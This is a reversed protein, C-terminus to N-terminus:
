ALKTYPVFASLFLSTKNPDWHNKALIRHNPAVDKSVSSGLNSFDQLNSSNQLPSFTWNSSKM